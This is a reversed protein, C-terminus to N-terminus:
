AQPKEHSCSRSLRRATPQERDVIAATDNGSPIRAASMFIVIAKASSTFAQCPCRKRFRATGTRNCAPLSFCNRGLTEVISFKKDM